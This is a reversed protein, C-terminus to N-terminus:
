KSPKIKLVECAKKYDKKDIELKVFGTANLLYPAWGGEDDATIFSQIGASTLIGKFVEAEVRTTFTKIIIADM